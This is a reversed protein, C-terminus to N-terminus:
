FRRGEMEEIRKRLEDPVPIKHKNKFDYCVVVGEGSAALGLKPSWIEHELVFSTNGIKSVKCGVEVTDPYVLPQLFSCSTHALIPGTDSRADYTRKFGMERFYALRASEFYRFYMVNNVHQYADMDGWAITQKIIVPFTSLNNM